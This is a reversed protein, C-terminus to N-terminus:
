NLPQSPTARTAIERPKGCSECFRVNPKITQGCQSCFRTHTKRNQFASDMSAGPPGSLTPQESAEMRQPPSGRSEAMSGFSDQRCNNEPVKVKRIRKNQLLSYLNWAMAAILLLLVLTFGTEYTMTALGQSQKQIQADLRSRMILLSVAGAGGVAASAGAMRKGILSLVIGALACLGAIAAFPDSDVKQSQPPGFAQPQTLTTGTALQQGTLTFAKIGGCSVTVFPLFFCLATGVFILVSAVSQKDKM